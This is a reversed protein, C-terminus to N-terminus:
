MTYRLGRASKEGWEADGSWSILGRDICTQPDVRGAALMVFTASDVHVEVDPDGLSEVRAARGDVKVCLEADVGGTIHFTIGLGDPLGIKKGVIYGIAASVEDLATAAAPGTDDTALGLPWAMDREHVWIDFVRVRLFSGYTNMGTPTISALDVVGPDLSELHAFRANMAERCRGLLEAGSLGEVDHQFEGIRAFPPPDETSPAWGTLVREVGCVHTLVGAIDWDPCYSQTSWQDETLDSCLRDMAAWEWRLIDTYEDLTTM